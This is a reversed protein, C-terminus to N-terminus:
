LLKGKVLIIISLFPISTLMPKAAANCLNKDCCWIGNYLLNSSKCNALIGRSVFSFAKSKLCSINSDDPVTTINASSPDFPDNCSECIYCQLGNSFQTSLILLLCILILQHFAIM